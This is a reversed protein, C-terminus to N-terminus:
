PQEDKLYLLRLQYLWDRFPKENPKEPLESCDYAEKLHKLKIDFIHRNSNEVPEFKAGSGNLIRIGFNLVRILQNWKKDTMKGAEEFKKQNHISMGNISHFCNKALNNETIKRLEHFTGYAINIKPSLVGVIFNINGQILMGVTKEAEHIAYDKDDIQRFYSKKKATGDLIARTPEVYIQFIDIDSNKHEMKWCHSGVITEGIINM